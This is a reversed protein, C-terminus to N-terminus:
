SKFSFPLSDLVDEYIAFLDLLSHAGVNVIGYRYSGIARMESSLKTGKRGYIKINSEPYRSNFGDIHQQGPVGALERGEFTRLVFSATHNFVGNGKIFNPKVGLALDLLVQYTNLGEVNEYLDGFQYSLRPNIEIIHINDSEHDYFLEVNFQANQVGIGEMLDIVIEEMRDTVEQPFRSPYQFREFINTGEFMISDVIGCVTVKGNFAFGDVTVQDGKILEEGIFFNADKELGTYTRLLQNFPRAIVKLAIKEYWTFRFHQLMEQLSGVKKAFLSFTGKVPKVFFPYDLKSKFSADINQPILQCKVAADPCYEQQALRSYYKHQCLIIRSPDAGPLGLKNSVAAAIIAGIYEDTSLVADVKLRKALKVMKAVYADANFFPLRFYDLFGFLNKGAYIFSYEGAYKQRSFEKIDWDNPFLVLVKKM